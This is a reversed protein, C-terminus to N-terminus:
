RQSISTTVSDVMTAVTNRHIATGFLKRGVCSVPRIWPTVTASGSIENSAMRARSAVTSSTSSDSGATDPIPEVMPTLVPNADSLRPCSVM